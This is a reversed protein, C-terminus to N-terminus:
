RAGQRLRRVEALLAAIVDHPHYEADRMVTVEGITEEVANLDSGALESYLRCLDGVSSREAHPGPNLAHELLDLTTDDVPFPPLIVTANGRLGLVLLSAM